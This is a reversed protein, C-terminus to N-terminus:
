ASQHLPQHMYLTWYVLPQSNQRRVVVLLSDTSVVGFEELILEAKLYLTIRAVTESVAAVRSEFCLRTADTAACHHRRSGRGPLAKGDVTAGRQERLQGM